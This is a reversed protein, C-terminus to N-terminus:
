PKTGDATPAPCQAIAMESWNGAADQVAIGWDYMAEWEVRGENLIWKDNPTGDHTNCPRDTAQTRDKEKFEATETDIEGLPEGDFWLRVARIHLDGDVDTTYASIRIMPVEETGGEPIQTYYECWPGDEIVPPHDGCDEDGEGGGDGGVTVTGPDGGSDTGSGWKSGTCAVLALASVLAPALTPSRASTWTM